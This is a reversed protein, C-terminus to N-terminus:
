KAYELLEKYIIDPNNDSLGSMQGDNLEVVRWVGDARKAVDVVVFRVKNPIRDLVEMVLDSAETELEPCCDVSNSWYFGKSIIKGDLCFFRWENTVPLGNIQEGLIEFQEFERVVLGQERIMTDDLLRKVVRPVDDKTEAFMHTKWQFKRSNTLGKVVYSGEPLHYGWPQFRTKPTLDEIDHVWEMKAIYQHASFSNILYSNKLALEEELEKYFPLASYRCIVLSNEPVQSRYELLRDGWIKQACYFEGEEELSKRFLIVSKM